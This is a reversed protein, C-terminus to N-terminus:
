RVAGEVHVVKGDAGLDVWTAVEQQRAIHLEFQVVATQACLYYREATDRVGKLWYLLFATVESSDLFGSEAQVIRGPSQITRSRMGDSEGSEQATLCFLGNVPSGRDCRRNHVPASDAWGAMAM